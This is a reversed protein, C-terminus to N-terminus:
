ANSLAHSTAHAWWRKRQMLTADQTKLDANSKMTIFGDLALDRHKEQAKADFSIQMKKPPLGM